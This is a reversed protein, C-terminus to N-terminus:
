LEIKLEENTLAFYLNQLQHLHKVNRFDSSNYFGLSWWCLTKLTLNFTYEELKFDEGCEKFRCKLLIEETLTIPQLDDFINL